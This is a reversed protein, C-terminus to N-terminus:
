KRKLRSITTDKTGKVIYYFVKGNNRLYFSLEKKERDFMPTEVWWEIATENHNLLYEVLYDKFAFADDYTKFYKTVSEYNNIFITNSIEEAVGTTKTFDTEVYRKEFDNKHTRSYVLSIILTLILLIIVTIYIKRKEIYVGFVNM